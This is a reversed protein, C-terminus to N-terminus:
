DYTNETQQTKKFIIFPNRYQLATFNKDLRKNTQMKNFIQRACKKEQLLVRYTFKSTTTNPHWFSKILFPTKPFHNFLIILKKKRGLRVWWTDSLSDIGHYYAM